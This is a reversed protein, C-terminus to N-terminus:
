GEPAARGAVNDFLAEIFLDHDPSHAGIWVQEYEGDANGRPTRLGM